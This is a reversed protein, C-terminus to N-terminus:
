CFQRHPKDYEQTYDQATASVPELALSKKLLCAHRVNLGVNLGLHAVVELGTWDRYVQSLLKLLYFLVIMIALTVSSAVPGIEQEDIYQAKKDIM